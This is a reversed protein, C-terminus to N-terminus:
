ITFHKSSAPMFAKAQTEDEDVVALPLYLPLVGKAGVNSDLFPM